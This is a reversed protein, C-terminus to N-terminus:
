CIRISVVLMKSTNRNHKLGCGRAKAFRFLLVLGLVFPAIEASDVPTEM